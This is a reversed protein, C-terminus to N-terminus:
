LPTHTHTNGGEGWNVWLIGKIERPPSLQDVKIFFFRELNLGGAEWGQEEAKRAM